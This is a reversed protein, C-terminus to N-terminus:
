FIINASSCLHDLNIQCFFFHQSYLAHVYIKKYKACKQLMVTV